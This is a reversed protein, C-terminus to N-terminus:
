LELNAKINGLRQAISGDINEMDSLIIIGGKAVSMDNVIEVEPHNFNNVIFDYDYPSVKLTIKRAEKIDNMLAKTLHLAVKASDNEIEKAIVESAINISAKSLENELSNLINNANDIYSAINGLTQNLRNRDQEYDSKFNEITQKIGDDFGQKYNVQKEEDSLTNSSGVDINDISQKLENIINLSNDIKDSIKKEISSLSDTNINEQKKAPPVSDKFSNNSPANKIISESIDRYIDERKKVVHEKNANHFSEKHQKILDNKVAILDLNNAEIDSHKDDYLTSFTYDEILHEAKTDNKIINNDTM